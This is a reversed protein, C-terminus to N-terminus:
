ESHNDLSPDIPRDEARVTGRSKKHKKRPPSRSPLPTTLDILLTVISRKSFSLELISFFHSLVVTEMRRRKM